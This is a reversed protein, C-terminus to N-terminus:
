ELREPWRQRAHLVRLIDIADARVRYAAIYPTGTVVLERTGERRGPRGIAPFRALRAVTAVVRGIQDDAAATNDQAIYARASALDRLAAATWVLRM